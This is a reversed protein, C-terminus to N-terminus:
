KSISKRCTCSLQRGSQSLGEFVADKFENMIKRLINVNLEPHVIQRGKSTILVKITHGSDLFKKMHNAKIILDHENINTKFQIEKMLSRSAKKEHKSQTYKYKSYDIIKCIAPSLEALDLEQEHAM